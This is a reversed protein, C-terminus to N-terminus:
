NKHSLDSVIKAVKDASNECSICRRPKELAEALPAPLITKHNFSPTIQKVAHDVTEVFKAPHATSLCVTTYPKQISDDSELEKRVAESVYVGVATHPDLLYSERKNAADPIYFKRITEVATADRCSGSSFVERAAKLGKESISFRGDAKLEEMWQKVLKGAAKEREAIDLSTDVEHDRAIYWIFREFNSSVLIDMAPSTTALVGEEKNKEYSGTCFFRDLIDNSNTAVVLKTVPLGMERAYFGALVDGFNGTPVSFVINPNPNGNRVLTLYTHFYYIIQVMIRAWNISNVACLNNAKHFDERGFLEKLIAQCDDFTGDIAINHVNEDPVTTMQAEQIPSVRGKPFMIFVSIGEKGRLGYIAASGTDGSTAGLVALTQKPEGEKRSANRKDLFYKFLNGLFQLAVDKFAFTPGHFLELIWTDTKEDLKVLPTVDKTNFTSFSRTILDKLDVTPIDTEGIYDRTIEFALDQFSHNAWKEKWDSPIKPITEPVFLGGDPALGQLVASEFSYGSSNGRTSHYQM